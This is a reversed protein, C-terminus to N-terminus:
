ALVTKIVKDDIRHLVQEVIKFMSIKLIASHVVQCKDM